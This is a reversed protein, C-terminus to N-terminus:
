SHDAKNSRHGDNNEKHPNEATPPTENITDRLRAVAQKAMRLERDARKIISLALEVQASLDDTYNSM